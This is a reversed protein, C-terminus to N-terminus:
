SRKLRFASVLEKLIQAQSNLAHSAGACEESTVTNNQIVTSIEGIGINVESISRSQDQSMGAIQSLYESVEQVDGVIKDLSEATENAATMGNDVRVLSDEILEATEKAARSCKSALNRVEEAVVAFGRGHQGARAAEVAANLALLNTQFAIDEITKIIRSINSSSAKIGEMSSVMLQMKENSNQADHSSKGSFENAANANESNLRTKENIVEISASLEQISSAQRVSGEALRQASGSIQGASTLVQRASQEIEGMSNNLSDIIKTLAQKIPAYSGIYERNISVTLDGGSMATLTDSIENIYSLTVDETTNVAQKLMDFEGKYDGTIRTNFNGNAMETIVHDIEAIPEAVAKILANLGAILVAWNGKYKDTDIQVDLNGNAASKAATSIESVMDALTHNLMDFQRNFDAKKGPMTRINATKGECVETIGGLIVTIDDVSGTVMGNIGDVMEKYSGSYKSADIRYEIDGNVNLETTIRSLDDIVNKIVAIVAYVDATLAGIEDKTIKKPDISINLNGNAVNDMDSRLKRLPKSLIRSVSLAIVASLVVSLASIIIFMNNLDNKESSIEAAQNKLFGTGAGKVSASLALAEDMMEVGSLVAALSSEYDGSAAFRTVAQM